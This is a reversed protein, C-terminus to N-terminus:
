PTAKQSWDTQDAQNTFFSSSVQTEVLLCKPVVHACLRGGRDKTALSLTAEVFEDQILDLSDIGLINYRDQTFICLNLPTEEPLAQSTCKGTEDCRCAEM